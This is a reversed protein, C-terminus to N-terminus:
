RQFACAFNNESFKLVNVNKYVHVGDSETIPQGVLVDTSQMMGPVVFLDATKKIQDIEIESQVLGLPTM